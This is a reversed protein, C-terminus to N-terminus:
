EVIAVGGNEPPEVVFDWGTHIPDTLATQTDPDVCSVFLDFYKDGGQSVVNYIIVRVFGEVDHDTNFNWNTTTDANGNSDCSLGGSFVSMDRMMFPGNACDPGAAPCNDTWTPNRGRSWSGQVTPDCTTNSLTPCAGWNSTDWTTTAVPNASYDWSSSSGDSYTYSGSGGNLQDELLQFASNMQGNKLTIDEEGDSISSETYTAGCDGDNLMASFISDDGDAATVPYSWAAQDVQASQLRIRMLKNCSNTGTWDEVTCTPLSLPFSCANGEDLPLRAVAYNAAKLESKGFPFMSFFTKVNEEAGVWMANATAADVTAQATSYGTPTQGFETWCGGQTNCDNEQYADYRGPIVHNQIDVTVHRQHVKNAQAVEQARLKAADVGSQTGDLLLAGAHAGADAANSLQTMAVRHWGVDIAIATFGLLMACTVGFIAAYAGRRHARRVDPHRM